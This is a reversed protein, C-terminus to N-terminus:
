QTPPTCAHSHSKAFPAAEASRRLNIKQLSHRAAGEASGARPPFGIPNERGRGGMGSRRLKANAEEGIVLEDNSLRLLRRQAVPSPSRMRLLNGHQKSLFSVNTPGGGFVLM